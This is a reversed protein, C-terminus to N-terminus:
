VGSKSVRGLLVHDGDAINFAAAVANPAPVEGVELLEYSYGGPAPAFYAGVEVRFPQRDRVYVGKGQRSTLYGEAKLVALAKQVTTNSVGFEAVLHATSPLQTGPALDGAMIRARMEAAMQEYPPRDDARQTLTTM